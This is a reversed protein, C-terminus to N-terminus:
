ILYDLDASPAIDEMRLPFVTVGEEVGQAIERQIQPSANAASTFVLVIAHSSEIARNISVNWVQAESIDRSSLFCRIGAAELRACVADAASQDKSAYSIFVDHAM